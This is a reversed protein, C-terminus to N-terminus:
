LLKDEDNLQCLLFGFEFNPVSIWSELLIQLAVNRWLLLFYFSLVLECSM